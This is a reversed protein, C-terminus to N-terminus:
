KYAYIKVENKDCKLEFKGIDNIIKTMSNIQKPAASISLWEIEKYDYFGKPSGSILSEMSSDFYDFEYQLENNLYFHRVSNDWILKIFAQCELDDIATLGNLLKVWKSNSMYSVSFDCILSGTKNRALELHHM